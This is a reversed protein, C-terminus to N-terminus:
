RLGVNVTLPSGATMQATMAVGIVTGATYTGSCRVRGNTATDQLVYQGITCTGTGLTAAAWGMTIVAVRQGAQSAGASIGLILGGGTDRTTGMVVSNSNATDAKVTVGAALATTATWQTTFGGQGNVAGGKIDLKIGLTGCDESAGNENTTCTTGIGLPTMGNANNYLLWSPAAYDDALRSYYSNTYSAPISADTISYSGDDTWSQTGFNVWPVTCGNASRDNQLYGSYKGATTTRYVRICSSAHWMPDTLTFTIQGKKGLKAPTELGPFSEGGAGDLDTVRYYYTGGALSGSSTSTTPASLKAPGFLQSFAMDQMGGPGAVAIGRGLVNYNGALSTAGGRPFNGLMWGRGSTFVSTTLSIQGAGGLANENTTQAGQNSVGYPGKDGNDFWSYEGGSVCSGGTNLCYIAYYGPFRNSDQAIQTFVPNFWSAIQGAAGSDIVTLGEEWLSETNIFEARFNQMALNGVLDSPSDSSFGHNTLWGYRFAIQADGVNQTLNNFCVAGPSGRLPSASLVFYEAVFGISNGDFHLPCGVGTSAEVVNSEVMQGGGSGGVQTFDIGDGQVDYIEIGRTDLMGAIIVAPLNSNGRIQAVPYTSFQTGSTGSAGAEWNLSPKYLPLDDAWLLGNLITLVSSNAISSPWHGIAYVGQPIVVANFRNANTSGVTNMASVLFSSEDHYVNVGAATTTSANAALTLTKTRGGVSITTFLAQPGAAGPPNAPLFGPTPLVTGWDDFGFDVNGSKHNVVPACGIATLPGGAGKDSYVCGMIAGSPASAVSIYNYHHINLNAYADSTTFNATASAQSYGEDNDVWVVAYKVTISGGTIHSVVTPASPRTLTSTPGAQEVMIGCGNVFDLPSDLNLTPSGKTMRGTTRAGLTTDMVCGGAPMYSSIDIYPIPGQFRNSNAWRNDTRTGQGPAPAPAGCFVLVILMLKKM